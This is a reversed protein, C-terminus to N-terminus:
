LRREITEPQRRELNMFNIRVVRHGDREANQPDGLLMARGRAELTAFRKRIHGHVASVPAPTHYVGGPAVLKNVRDWPHMTDGPALSIVVCQNLSQEPKSAETLALGGRPSRRFPFKVSRAM